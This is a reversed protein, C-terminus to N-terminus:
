ENQPALERVDGSDIMLRKYEDETGRVRVDNGLVHWVEQRRFKLELPSWHHDEQEESLRNAIAAIEDETYDGYWTLEVTSGRLSWYKFPPVSPRSDIFAKLDDKTDRPTLDPACSSMAALCSAIFLRARQMSRM